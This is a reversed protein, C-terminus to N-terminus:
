YKDSDCKPASVFSDAKRSEYIESDTLCFYDHSLIPGGGGVPDDWTVDVHYYEGDLEIINWGHLEGDNCIGSIVTCPINLIDMLYKFTKAYGNCTSENKILLGYISGGFNENKGVAWSPTLNYTCNNVIYDHVWLAQEYDSGDPVQEVIENLKSKIEKDYEDIKSEDCDYITSVAYNTKEGDPSTEIRISGHCWFIEPHDMLIFGSLLDAFVDSLDSAHANSESYAVSDTFNFITRNLTAEYLGDYIQKGYENLNDRRTLKRNDALLDDISNITVDDLDLQEAKNNSDATNNEENSGTSNNEEKNEADADNQTSVSESVGSKSVIVDTTVSIITGSLIFILILFAIAVQKKVEASIYVKEYRNSKSSMLLKVKLLQLAFM